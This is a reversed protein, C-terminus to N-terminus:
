EDIEFTSKLTLYIKHIDKLDYMIEETWRNPALHDRFSLVETEMGLKKIVESFQYCRVRVHPYNYGSHGIFIVKM